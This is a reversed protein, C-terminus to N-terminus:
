SEPAEEIEPEIPAVFLVTGDPQPQFMNLDPVPVTTAPNIAAVAQFMASYATLAAVGNLGFADLIAQQEGETNVKAYITALMSEVHNLLENQSSDIDEAIRQAKTKSILTTM